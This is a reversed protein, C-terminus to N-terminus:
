NKIKLIINKKFFGTLLFFVIAIISGWLLINPILMELFYDFGITRDKILIFIPIFAPMAIALYFWVPMNNRISLDGSTSILTKANVTKNIDFTIVVGKFVTSCYKHYRLSLKLESIKFDTDKYRGLFSDDTEISNFRGFLTSEALENPSFIEIENMYIKKRGYLKFEGICKIIQPVYIKKLEYRFEDNACIPSFLAVLVFVGFVIIALAALDSSIEELYNYYNFLCYGYLSTVFIIFSEFILTAKLKKKRHMEISPFVRLVQSLYESILENESMM